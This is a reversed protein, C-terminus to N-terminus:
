SKAESAESAFTTGGQHANPPSAVETEWRSISEPVIEIGEQTMPNYCRIMNLTPHKVPAEPRLETYLFVTKIRCPHVYGPQEYPLTMRQQLM